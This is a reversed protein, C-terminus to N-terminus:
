ARHTTSIASAHRLVQISPGPILPAGGAGAAPAAAAAACHCFFGKARHPSSEIKAPGRGNTGGKGGGGEELTPTEANGIVLLTGKARRMGQNLIFMARASHAKVWSRIM